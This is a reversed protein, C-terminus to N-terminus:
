QISCVCGPHAIKLLTPPDLSASFPKKPFFKTSPTSRGSGLRTNGREGMPASERLPGVPYSHRVGRVFPLCRGLLGVWGFVGVSWGLLVMLWGSRIVPVSRCSRGVLPASLGVLGFRGFRGSITSRESRNSSEWAQGIAWGVM